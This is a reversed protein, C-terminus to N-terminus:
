RRAQLLVRLKARARSLRSKVTGERVGLAAGIDAVSLDELYHLVLVTQYRADLRLLAAHARDADGAVERSGPQPVLEPAPLPTPQPGRREIWRNAQRSAIGYLWFLFPRGRDRHRALGRWAALFTESLLDDAVHRDGVRRLLYSGIRAVHRRYLVEFARPDDIARRILAPEDLTGEDLADEDAVITTWAEPVLSGDM